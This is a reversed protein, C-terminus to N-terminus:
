YVSYPERSKESIYIKLDSDMEKLNKEIGEFFKKFLPWECSFHTIDIISMGMEKYDSVYHYSTDGTIILDAGLKKAEEFYDQGSGNIIAIKSVTSYMDGAVRLFPTQLKMRINRCVEKLTIKDQLEVIRGIGCGEYGNKGEIIASDEYGLINVIIDNLGGEVSDLNTHASYVNINNRILEIIKKGQLTDTTITEPKRFLLPHHSFILNAGKGKAEEIVELTVDLAVLIGEISDEKNGIALGVNDYSEKLEIPAIEEIYEAFKKVKIAM